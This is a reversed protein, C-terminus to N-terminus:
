NVELADVQPAPPPHPTPPPTHYDQGSVKSKMHSDFTPEQQIILALALSVAGRLGAWALITGEKWTLGYGLRKLVPSFLM